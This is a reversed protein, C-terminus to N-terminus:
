NLAKQLCKAVTPHDSTEPESVPFEPCRGGDGDTPMTIPTDDTWLVPEKLVIVLAKRKQIPEAPAPEYVTYQELLLEVRRTGDHITCALWM